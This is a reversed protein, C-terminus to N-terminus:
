DETGDEDTFESEAEADEEAVRKEGLTLLRDAEKIWEHLKDDAEEVNNVGILKPIDLESLLQYRKDQDLGKYLEDNSASTTPIDERAETLDHVNILITSVDGGQMSVFLGSLFDPSQASNIIETLFKKWGNLEETVDVM